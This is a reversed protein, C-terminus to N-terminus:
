LKSVFIHRPDYKEKLKTLRNVRETGGYFHNPHHIEDIANAYYGESKESTLLNVREIWGRESAESPKSGRDYPDDTWETGAFM